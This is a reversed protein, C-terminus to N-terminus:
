KQDELKQLTTQVVSELIEAINEDSERNSLKILAQKAFMTRAQQTYPVDGGKNMIDFLYGNFVPQNGLLEEAILGEKIASIFSIDWPVGVGTELPKKSLETM